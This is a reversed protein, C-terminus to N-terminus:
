KVINKSLAFDYLIPLNLYKKLGDRIDSLKKSRKLIRIVMFGFEEQFDLHCESWTKNYNAMVCWEEEGGTLYFLSRSPSIEGLNVSKIEINWIDETIGKTKMLITVAEVLDNTVERGIEFYWDDKSKFISVRHNRFLLDSNESKIADRKRKM